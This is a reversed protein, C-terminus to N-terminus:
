QSVPLQDDINSWPQLDAVGWPKRAVQASAHEIAM